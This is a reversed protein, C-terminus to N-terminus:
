SGAPESEVLTSLQTARYTTGPYHSCPAKYPNEDPFKPIGASVLPGLSQPAAVAALARFADLPGMPGGPLAGFGLVSRWATSFDKIDCGHAGLDVVPSLAWDLGNKLPTLNPSLSQLTSLTSPVAAPLVQLAQMTSALPTPAQKLLTTAARLSAAAPPLTASASRAVVDVATLLQRGAGLGSEIASLASPAQELTRQVASRDVVFPQLAAAGPALMGALDSRAANLASMGADADPLLAAAAGPRALIGHVVLDFDYGSGAGVRIADNLQEGRGILGEGLGRLMNGLGGRTQANFLDLTEPIGETISNAGGSITAGNGLLTRSDGPILDVYRAGLLGNSRVVVTTDVPLAGTSPQLQIHIRALGHTTSTGTVQGVQVGAIQVPDHIQLNGVYPVDAYLTRYNVFPVGNPAVVASGIFAVILALVVLGSVVVVVPRSVHRTRDRRLTRPRPTM